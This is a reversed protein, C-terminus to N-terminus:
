TDESMDGENYSYAPSDLVPSGQDQDIDSYNEEDSRSSVDEDERKDHKKMVRDMKDDIITETVMDGNDATLKNNNDEPEFEGRESM